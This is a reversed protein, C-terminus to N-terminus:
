NGCITLDKKFPRFSLAFMSYICLNAHQSKLSFEDSTTIFGPVNCQPSSSAILSARCTNMVASESACYIGDVSPIDLRYVGYRNTTKNVSVSIQEATRPSVANFKCDIRVEAGSLFYSHNNNFSNNSCVDCYVMGMVSIHPISHRSGELQMFMSTTVLLIFIITRPEM